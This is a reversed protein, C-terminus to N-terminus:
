LIGTMIYMYAQEIECMLYTAASYSPSTNVAVCLSTNILKQVVYVCGDRFVTNCIVVKSM